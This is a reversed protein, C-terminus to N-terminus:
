NCTLETRKSTKQKMKILNWIAEFFYTESCVTKVRVQQFLCVCVRVRVCVAVCMWGDM